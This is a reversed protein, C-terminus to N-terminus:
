GSKLWRVLSAKRDRGRSQVMLRARRRAHSCYTRIVQGLRLAYYFHLYRVSRSAPYIAAMEDRSLFVRKWSLKAKDGLSQIGVMDFFSMWQGYGNAALVAERATALLRQDLGDPVLRELVDDPVGAGLVSRALHLTLGVYRSARWERAREVVQTWDMEGRFRRLTEAVDCLSRLGVLRHQYCFHLCLHLLTDEPSLALVEVGAITTRRARDWLGAANIRVPGTPSAITWHIEIALGRVVVPPLHRRRRCCLEVDEFLPCSGGMDLLVAHARPSEARPVMLDVDCMPRLAVNDYVAEALYAGKLVIVRIGSSRLCQLVPGLGRYLRMNRSANAFYTLRLREWTDAPVSTQRSASKLRRYLLPALGHSFAQDGINSWDNTSGPNVEIPTEPGDGTLLQCLHEYSQRANLTQRQCNRRSPARPVMADRNVTQLM